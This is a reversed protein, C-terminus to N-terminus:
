VRAAAGIESIALTEKIVPWIREKKKEGVKKKKKKKGECGGGGM